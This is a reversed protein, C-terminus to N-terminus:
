EDVEVRVIESSSFSQEGGMKDKIVIWYFIKPSEDIEIVTGFYKSGNKLELIVKKGVWEKMGM